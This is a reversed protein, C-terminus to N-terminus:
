QEYLTHNGCSSQLLCCVRRERLQCDLTETGLASTQHRSKLHMNLESSLWNRSVKQLGVSNETGKMGITGKWTGIVSDTARNDRNNVHHNKKM